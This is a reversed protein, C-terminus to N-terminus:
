ITEEIKISKVIVKNVGHKCKWRTVVSSNVDHSGTRYVIRRYVTYGAHAPQLMSVSNDIQQMAKHIDSGKLEIYYANQKTDNLLLYDCREATSAPSFVDGDVKYQRIYSNDKNNGIHSCGNESSVFKSYTGCRAPDCKDLISM